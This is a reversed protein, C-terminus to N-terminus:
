PDAPHGARYGLAFEAVARPKFWDFRQGDFCGLRTRFTTQQSSSPGAASRRVRGDAHRGARIGRFLPPRSRDEFVANVTKIGDPEGYSIFGSAGTEYGRRHLGGDM